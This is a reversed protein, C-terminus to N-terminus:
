QEANKDNDAHDRYIWASRDPIDRDLLLRYVVVRKWDTVLEGPNAMIRKAMMLFLVAILIYTLVVPEGIAWSAVPLSAIAIIAGLPSNRFLLICLVWLVIFVLLEWPAIVFLVGMMTAIGRGGSFGIFVSWSHGAIAALGVLGQALIPDGLLTMGTLYAIGVPAMGKLIDFIGVPFMAWRSVSHWVNTGSVTGSGHKRIDIGRLIRGAIYASPISGIVYAGVILLVVQWWM